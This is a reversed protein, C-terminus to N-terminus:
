VLVVTPLTLSSTGVSLHMIILLYPKGELLDQPQACHSLMGALIIFKTVLNEVALM